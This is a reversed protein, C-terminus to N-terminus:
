TQQHEFIYVHLQFTPHNSDFTRLAENNLYVLLFTEFCWISITKEMKTFTLHNFHRFVTYIHYVTLFIAAALTHWLQEVLSLKIKCHLPADMLHLDFPLVRPYNSQEWCDSQKGQLLRIQTQVRKLEGSCSTSM